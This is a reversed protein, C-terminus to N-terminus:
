IVRVIKPRSKKNIVSGKTKLARKIAKRASTKTRFITASRVRRGGMTFAVQYGKKRM